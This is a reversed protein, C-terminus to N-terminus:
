DFRAFEKLSERSTVYSLNLPMVKRKDFADNPVRRYKEWQSIRVIVFSLGFDNFV